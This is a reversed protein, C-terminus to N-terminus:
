INFGLDDTENYSVTINKIIVKGSVVVRFQIERFKGVPTGDSRRTFQHQEAGTTSSSGMATWSDNEDLRFYASVSAGSPIDETLIGIGNLEKLVVSDSGFFLTHYEANVDYTGSDIADLRSVSGDDNHSFFHHKGVSYYGEISGLDGTDLLLSLAIPSGEQAQGVAWIGEKYTTPTADQPIRAYFLMADRHKSRTPTLVGNTNTAGYLRTMTKAGGPAAYKIALSYEGNATDDFQTQSNINESVAAVWIGSVYGLASNRGDGFEIKQDALTSASDWLLLQSRYPFFRYGMIGVQEDGSQIDTVTFGTDKAPDTVTTGSIRAVDDVGTNVYYDDDFAYEVVHQLSTISTQLTEHADTVSSGISNLTIYTNGGNNTVYLAEGGAPTVYLFTNDALNYSGEETELTWDDTATNKSMLKNGTGNSKTGVAFFKGSSYFFAKVNYQQLDDAGGSVTDQDAVYGPMPYLRNMDRYIDFHSVHACKSYDGSRLKDTIGGDFRTISRTIKRSM